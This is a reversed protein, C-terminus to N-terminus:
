GLLEQDVKEKEEAKGADDKGDGKTKVSTCGAILLILLVTITGRLRMSNM